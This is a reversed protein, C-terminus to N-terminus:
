VFGIDVDTSLMELACLVLDCRVIFHRVAVNLPTGRSKTSYVDRPEPRKFRQRIKGNHAQLDERASWPLQKTNVDAMTPALVATWILTRM